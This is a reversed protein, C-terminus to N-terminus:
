RSTASSVGFIKALTVSGDPSAVEAYQEIIAILIHSQRDTM